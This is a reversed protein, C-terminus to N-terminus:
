DGFKDELRTAGQHQQNYAAVVDRPLPARDRPSLLTTGIVHPADGRSSAGWVTARRLRVWGKNYAGTFYGTGRGEILDDPLHPFYRSPPLPVASVLGANIPRLPAGVAADGYRQETEYDAESGTRGSLGGRLGGAPAAAAAIAAQGPMSTEYPNPRSRARVMELPSPLLLGVLTTLAGTLAV